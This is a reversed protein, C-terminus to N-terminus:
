TWRTSIWLGAECDKRIHRAVVLYSAVAVPACYILFFANGLSPYLNAKMILNPARRLGALHRLDYDGPVSWSPM